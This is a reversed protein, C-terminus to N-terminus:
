PATQSWRAGLQRVRAAIDESRMIDGIIAANDAGSAVVEGLTELTIGGIAVVPLRLTRKVWAVHSVGLPRWESEKSQTPFVPGVGIYDVPEFEARLAQEKNHTSLGVIMEPGVIDRATEPPFDNQGLHVGDAEVEVALYPNDNVILTVGADRTISRLARGTEVLEEFPATKDRLQIVRAGGAIAARAIELHPKGAIHRDLIVYVGWRCLASRPREYANGPEVMGAM